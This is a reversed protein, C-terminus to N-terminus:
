SLEVFDTASGAALSDTAKNFCPLTRIEGGSRLMICFDFGPVRGPVM